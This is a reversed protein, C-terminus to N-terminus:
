KHGNNKPPEKLHKKYSHAFRVFCDRGHVSLDLGLKKCRAKAWAIADRQTEFVKLARRAGYARVAWGGGFNPHVMQRTKDM